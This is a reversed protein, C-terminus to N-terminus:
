IKPSIISIDICSAIPILMFSIIESQKVEYGIRRLYDRMEPLSKDNM